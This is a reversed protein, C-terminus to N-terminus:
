NFKNQSQALGKKILCEIIKPIKEITKGLNNKLDFNLLVFSEAKEKNLHPRIGIKIRTIKKTKFTHFINTVGKHGGSGSDKIIKLKGEELDSDDHILIIKDINEHIDLNKYRFYNKLTIGSKNMFELPALLLIKNNLINITMETVKKQPFFNFDDNSYKEAIKKIALFGVNHRTKKYKLGPNGLGIIIYNYDM